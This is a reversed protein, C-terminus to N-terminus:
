PRLVRRWERLCDIICDTYAQATPEQGIQDKLGYDRKKWYPPSTAILDITDDDLPLHRADGPHTEVQPLLDPVPDSAESIALQFAAIESEPDDDASSGNRAASAEPGFRTLAM